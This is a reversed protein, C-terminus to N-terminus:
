MGHKIIKSIMHRKEMSAYMSHQHQLKVSALVTEVNLRTMNTGVLGHAMHM